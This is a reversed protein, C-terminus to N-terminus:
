AARSLGAPQRKRLSIAKGFLSGVLDVMLEATQGRIDRMPNLEVVDLSGVLGSDHLLEMIHHAERYNLGGPVPTGVGPALSPDVVDLDFSVHLHTTAPDITSLVEGVIHRIGHEDVVRMDYCRIGADAIAEKEEQDISRAGIVFVDTPLIAPFERGHMLQMLDENGTLFALSMGHMNGSPSSQPTNFDPHADIWLVAVRKGERAVHRAVASVSGMSVSHDGGILLPRQGEALAALTEDHIAEIWQSVVEAHNGLHSINRPSQMQRLTPAVHERDVVRHGLGVLADALGALRAAAPGLSTGPVGAALGFPAGILGIPGPADPKSCPATTSPLHM